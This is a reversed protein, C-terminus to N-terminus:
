ASWVRIFPILFLAATAVLAVGTDYPLREALCGAHLVAGPEGTVLSSGDVPGHCIVCLRM